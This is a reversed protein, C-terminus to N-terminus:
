QAMFQHVSPHFISLTLKISCLNESQEGESWVFDGLNFALLWRKFSYKVFHKVPPEAAAVQYLFAM